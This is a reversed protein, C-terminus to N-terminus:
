MQLRGTRTTRQASASASAFGALIEDYHPSMSAGDEGMKQHAADRLPHHTLGM